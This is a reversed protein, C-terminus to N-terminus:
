EVYPPCDWFLEGLVYTDGTADVDLVGPVGPALAALVPCVVPDVYGIEFATVMDVVPQLPSEDAPHCSEYAPHGDYWDIRACVAVEDTTGALWVANGATTWVFEGPEDSLVHQRVGNVEIDCSFTGGGPQPTVAVGVLAGHPVDQSPPAQVLTCSAVVTGNDHARAAPAALLAAALAAPLLRRM